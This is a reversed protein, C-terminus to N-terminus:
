SQVALSESLYVPLVQGDAKEGDGDGAVYAGGMSAQLEAWEDAMAVGGGSGGLASGISRDEDGGEAPPRIVLTCNCCNSYSAPKQGLKM